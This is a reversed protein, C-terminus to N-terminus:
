SVSTRRQRGTGHRQGADSPAPWKPERLSGHEALKRLAAVCQARVPKHDRRQEARWVRCSTAPGQRASASIPRSRRATGRIEQSPRFNTVSRAGTQLAGAPGAPVGFVVVRFRTAVFFGAADPARGARGHRPCRGPGAGAGDSGPLATASRPREHKNNSAAEAAPGVPPQRAVKSITVRGSPGQSVWGCGSRGPDPLPAVQRM